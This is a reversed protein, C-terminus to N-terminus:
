SSAFLIKRSLLLRDFPFNESVKSFGNVGMTMFIV